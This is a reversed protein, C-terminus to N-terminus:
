SPLDEHKIAWSPADAPVTRNSYHGPVRVCRQLSSARLKQTAVRRQYTEDLHQKMRCVTESEWVLSRIRLASGGGSGAETCDAADTTEEDSSTFERTLVTQYKSMEDSSLEPLLREFAKQRRSLKAQVRFCKRQTRKKFEYRYQEDQFFSAVAASSSFKLQEVSVGSSPGLNTSAIHNFIKDTVAQNVPDNWRRSLDYLHLQKASSCLARYAQKILQKVQETSVSALEGVDSGEISDPCGDGQGAAMLVVCDDNDGEGYHKAEDPLVFEQDNSDTIDLSEFKPRKTCTPPSDPRQRQSRQNKTSSANFSQRKSLDELQACTSSVGPELITLVRGHLSGIIRLASVLEPLSMSELLMDANNMTCEFLTLSNFAPASAVAPSAATAM